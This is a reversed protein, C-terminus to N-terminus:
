HPERSGSSHRSRGQSPEDRQREEHDEGESEERDEEAAPDKVREPRSVGAPFEVRDHAAARGGAGAPQGGEEELARPLIEAPEEAKEDEREDEPRRREGDQHDDHGDEPRERAIGRVFAQHEPGNQELHDGGQEQSEEDPHDHIVGADPHHRLVRGRREPSQQPRDAEDEPIESLRQGQGPEVDQRPRDQRDEEPRDVLADIVRRKQGDQDREEDPM